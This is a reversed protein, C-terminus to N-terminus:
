PKAMKRPHFRDFFQRERGRRPRLMPSTKHLQGVRALAGFLAKTFAWRQPKPVWAARCVDRVMRVPLGVLQRIVHAPHRLNKWQFLLTNRLALHDCGETGFTPGFTGMGLHYAVSSPVYRAHYGAQYGRYAFDLDELRGPLYLPDFGGIEVFARRAVAMVSGASATLDPTDITDEHGPYFSTGEVLGWRWRVATKLGEYTEGDFRRCLPGTMFCREGGERQGVLPDVLPDIAGRDLKIDNNLLLVVPGPLGPVVDNFSCLGRNPRHIIRVAAFNERLWDVSDDDSDNDIVIVDCRHRSARAAELVSPLCDALLHRGNYNLILVHVLVGLRRRSPGRSGSELEAPSSNQM